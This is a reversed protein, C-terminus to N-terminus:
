RMILGRLFDLPIGIAWAEPASIGRTFRVSACIRHWAKEAFTAFVVSPLMRAGCDPCQEPNTEFSHEIAAKWAANQIKALKEGAGHAYIGYCRITKEHKKPLFYLMKESPTLNKTYIDNLM